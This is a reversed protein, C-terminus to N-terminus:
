FNFKRGETKEQQEKQQKEEQSIEIAAALQELHNRIEFLQRDLFHDQNLHQLKGYCNRYHHIVVEPGQHSESEQAQILDIDVELRKYSRKAQLLLQDAVEKSINGQQQIDAIFQGLEKVIALARSAEDHSTFITMQGDPHPTAEPISQLQNLIQAKQEQNAPSPELQLVTDWRSVLYAKLMSRLGPTVLLQPLNELLHTARRIANKLRMLKLKRERKRIEIDQIVMGLAAMIGVGLLILLAIKLPSM